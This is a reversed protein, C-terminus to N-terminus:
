SLVPDQELGTLM